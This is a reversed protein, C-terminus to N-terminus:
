LASLNLSGVFVVEAQGYDNGKSGKALLDTSVEASVVGLVILINLRWNGRVDALNVDVLNVVVTTRVARIIGPHLRRLRSNSDDGGTVSVIIAMGSRVAQLAKALVVDLGVPGFSAPPCLRLGPAVHHSPVDDNFNRLIGGRIRNRKGPWM